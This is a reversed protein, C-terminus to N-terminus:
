LSGTKSCIGPQHLFVKLNIRGEEFRVGELRLLARQERASAGSTKLTGNASVIRHWPLENFEGQSLLRAVTRHHRPYGASEAIKGYTSVKGAPVSLIAKQFAHTRELSEDKANGDASRLDFFLSGIAKRQVKPQYARKSM